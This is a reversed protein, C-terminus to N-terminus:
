EDERKSFPEHCYQIRFFSIWRGERPVKARRRLAVEKYNLSYQSLFYGPPYKSTSWEFSKICRTRHRSISTSDRIDFREVTDIWRRFIMCGTIEKWIKNLRTKGRTRLENELFKEFIVFIKGVLVSSFLYKIFTNSGTSRFKELALIYTRDLPKWKTM